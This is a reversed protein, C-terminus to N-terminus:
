VPRLHRPARAERLKKELRERERRWRGAERDAKADLAARAEEIQTVTAEHRAEAKKSRRRPLPM